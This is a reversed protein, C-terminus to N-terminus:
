IAIFRYDKALLKQSYPRNINPKSTYKVVM